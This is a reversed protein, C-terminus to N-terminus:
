VLKEDAVSESNQGALAVSGVLTAVGVNHLWRLISRFPRM